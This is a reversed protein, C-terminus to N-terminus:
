ALSQRFTKYVKSILEQYLNLPVESLFLNEFYEFLHTSFLSFYQDSSGAALVHFFIDFLDDQLIAEAAANAGRAEYRKLKVVMQQAIADAIAKREKVLGGRNLGYVRISEKGQPTLGSIVGNRDFSFHREVPHDWEPNLLMRMESALVGHPTTWNTEPLGGADLAPPGQVRTAEDSLPFQNSKLGNCTECSQILNSWEYALWYYGPHGAPGDKLNKKPRFHDVRESSTVRLPGECYACKDGYIGQLQARVSVGAYRNSIETTPVACIERLDAAWAKGRLTSPVKGLDKTRSIM